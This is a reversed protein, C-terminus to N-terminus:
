HVGCLFAACIEARQEDSILSSISELSKYTLTDYVEAGEPNGEEHWSQPVAAEFDIKHLLDIGCIEYRFWILSRLGPEAVKLKEERELMTLPVLGAQALEVKQAKKHVITENM